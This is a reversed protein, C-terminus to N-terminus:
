LRPGYDFIGVNAKESILAVDQRLWPPAAYDSERRDNFQVSPCGGYKQRSFSGQVFFRDTLMVLFYRNLKKTGVAGCNPCALAHVFGIQAADLRLGHDNFCGACLVPRVSPFLRNIIHAGLKTRVAYACTWDISRVLRWRFRNFLRRVAPHSKAPKMTKM